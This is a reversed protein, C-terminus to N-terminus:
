AVGSWQTFVTLIPNFRHFLTSSLTKFDPLRLLRHPGEHITEEDISFVISSSEKM